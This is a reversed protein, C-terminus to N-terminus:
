DRALIQTVGFLLVADEGDGNLGTDVALDLITSPGTSWALGLQAQWPKEDRAHVRTGYVEFFADLEPAVPRGLVMSVGHFTDHGGSDERGLRGLVYNLTYFVEPLQGDLIATGYFEYDEAGLDRQARPVLVCVQAGAALNHEPDEWLRRRAGVALDGRGRKTGGRRREWDYPTPMVYLETREDLGYRLNVVLERQDGPDLFAGAELEFGHPVATVNDTAFSPRQATVHAEGRPPLQCAPLAAAALAAAM